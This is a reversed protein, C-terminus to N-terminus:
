ASVADAAPKTPQEAHRPPHNYAPMLSVYSHGKLKKEFFEEDFSASKRVHLRRFRFYYPILCLSM